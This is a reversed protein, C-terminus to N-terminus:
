SHDSILQSVTVFRYGRKRLGDIIVPLAKRTEARSKYMAHLLIVSGPHAKSLVYESIKQASKAIEPYSEPESDWMITKRDHGSLYWPLLLLKKGYPPRFYIEGKYGAVRIVRDTQKLERRIFGMSKFVMRKHSWSHNGLENGDNVILRAENMNKEVEIGIVFFTARIGKENLIKLIEQTYVPEPGDDFTLAVVSDPTSVHSIITGFFQFDRSKSIQWGGAVIGALIILSLVLRKM